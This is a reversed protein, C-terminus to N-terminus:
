RKQLRWTAASRDVNGQCKPTLSTVLPHLHSNKEANFAMNFPTKLVLLKLLFLCSFEWTVIHNKPPFREPTEIKQKKNQSKM